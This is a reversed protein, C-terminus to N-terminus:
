FGVYKTKVEKGDLLLSVADFKNEVNLEFLSICKIKSGERTKLLISLENCNLEKNYKLNLDPASYIKSSEYALFFRPKISNAYDKCLLIFKVKKYSLNKVVKTIKREIKDYMSIQRVSRVASLDMAINETRCASFTLLCFIILGILVKKM